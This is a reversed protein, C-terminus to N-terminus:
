MGAPGAHYLVPHRPAAEDLEARTPFRAEDLRTPLAYRVVIWEGEPATAAKQRIHAIVDKLSKLSQLPAKLESHAAEAPHVHSDWLRPLVMRSQGDIVQTKPGKLRLVPEDQGLAIIRGDKIAIAEVTRAQNDMTVIHAHYVILDAPGKAEQAVLVGTSAW